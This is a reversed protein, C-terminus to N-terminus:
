IPAGGTVADASKQTSEKIEALVKNIERQIELTQQAIKLQRDAIGLNGRSGGIMGGMRAMADTQQGEGKIKWKEEEGKATIEDIKKQAEEKQARKKILRKNEAIQEDALKNNYDQIEKENRKEAKDQTEAIAKQRKKEEEILKAGLDIREKDIQNVKTEAEARAIAADNGQIQLNKLLLAVDLAKQFEKTIKAYQESLPKSKAAQEDLAKKSDTKIKEAQSVQIDTAEMAQAGGQWGGGLMGAAAKIGQVFKATGSVFGATLKMKLDEVISVASELNRLDDDSVLKVGKELQYKKIDDLAAKFKWLGAVAFAVGIARQVSKLNRAFSSMSGEADKVGAKFRSSDIGLVAKLEALAM